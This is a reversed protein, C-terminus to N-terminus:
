NLVPVNNWVCKLATLCNDIHNENIIGNEVMKSFCGISVGTYEKFEDSDANKIIGSCNITTMDTVIVYMPLGALVTKVKEVLEKYTLDEDSSTVKCPKSNKSGKKINNDYLEELVNQVKFTGLDFLAASIDNTLNKTNIHFGSTIADTINKVSMQHELIKNTDVKVFNTNGHMYIPACKVFEEVNEEITKGNKVMSQSLYIMSLARHPNFDIVFCHTKNIKGDVIWPSQVRFITQFFNIPSNVDDFLLVTSWEPVTVGTCYKEVTLTLTPHIKISERVTEITENDGSVNIVKYDTMDDFKLPKSKLMEEFANCAAITPLKCLMHRKADPNNAIQSIHLPSDESVYESDIDTIDTNLLNILTIILNPYKFKGDSDVDFAKNINFQEAGTYLKANKNLLKSSVDCAIINLQPMSAHPSLTSGIWSNKANQEDTYSWSFIEDESFENSLLSVYATGSIYLWFKGNIKSNIGMSDETRTGYHEEDVIVIDWSTNYVWDFKAKKARDNATLRQMSIFYIGDGNDSSVSDGDYFPPLNVLSVHNEHPNKWEDLVQPKLTLILIKKVGLSQLAKIFLYSTFTKGFRMKAAILFKSSGKKYAAVAKDVCQVQEIRPAYNYPRAVGNLINNLEIHIINAAQAISMNKFFFQETNNNKTASLKITRVVDQRNQLVKHLKGEVEESIRPDAGYNLIDHWTDIGFNKERYSSDNFREQPTKSTYGVNVYVGNIGGLQTQSSGHHAAYIHSM